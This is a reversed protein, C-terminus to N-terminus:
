FVDKIEEFSHAEKINELAEDELEKKNVFKEDLISGSEAGLINALRHGLELKPPDDPM